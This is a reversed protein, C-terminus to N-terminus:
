VKRDEKAVKAARSVTLKGEKVAQLLEPEGEKRVKVADAVSRPSVNMLKAAGAQSLQSTQLNASPVHQNGAFVRPKINALEAAIMARQSADLHRRRLNKSIVFRLIAADDGPFTRKICPAGAKLCARMRNRGDLIRGQHDIWIPERLGEARIDAILPAFDDGEM